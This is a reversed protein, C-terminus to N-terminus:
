SAPRHPSSAILAAFEAPAFTEGLAFVRAREDPTPWGDADAVRERLNALVPHGSWQPNDMVMQLAVRCEGYEGVCEFPKWEQLGLLATFGEQPSTGFLEAGWISELRSRDLATALALYVFQCKPCQGCWRSTRRAPDLRFAANCSSFSDFYRDCTQAFRRAIALESLPRLLSFYSLEPTISRVLRAISLEAEDSKSWQHNIEVGQYTINGESASRENSMVVSGHGRLVASCLVALSVIATAPVHGNLAGAKNLAGIKPDLNRVVAVDALHAVSIVDAIVPYRNVTILTPSFRPDGTAASRLTEVSVCSDKGGGVAVLPGRGLDLGTLPAAAVASRFSYRPQLEADLGNVFSFEGLGKALLRRHFAVEEVTFGDASYSDAIEVEPPAAMKYYSLGAALGLHRVLREFAKRRASDPGPIGDASVPFVFVERCDVGGAGSRDVLEYTFTATVGDLDPSGDYDIDIAVYRFLAIAAPNFRTIPADASITDGTTPKANTEVAVDLNGAM